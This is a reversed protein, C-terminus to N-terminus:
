DSVLARDPKLLLAAAPLKVILFPRLKVVGEVNVFTPLKVTSVGLTKEVDFPVNLKLPPITVPTTCSFEEVKCMAAAAPAPIKEIRPLLKKPLVLLTEAACVRRTCPSLM